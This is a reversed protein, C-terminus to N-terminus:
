EASSALDLGSVLRRAREQLEQVYPSYHREVVYTTIGLLKGVDYVSAGQELLRVAFTDRWRHSHAGQVGARKWLRRLIADLTQPLTRAGTSTPFVFLSAQQVANLSKLHERLASLLRPHVPISVVKGRKETRRIILSSDLHLDSKLLGCIDGIRFGTLLFTLIIAPLDPRARAHSATLMRSIEAQSFPQTNRPRSGLGKSDVPNSDLLRSKVAFTFVGHLIRLDSKLGEPGLGPDLSRQRVYDAIVLTTITGVSRSALFKGFRDCVFEYKHLSSPRLRPRVSSLFDRAFTPWPLPRVRQGSWLEREIDLLRHVAESRFQTDLSRRVEKGRVSGRCWFIRGRKYLAMMELAYNCSESLLQGEVWDESKRLLWPSM